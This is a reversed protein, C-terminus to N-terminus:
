RHSPRPRRAARCLWTCHHSGACARRSKGASRSCHGLQRCTGAAPSFPSHPICHDAKVHRRCSPPALAADPRAPRLAPDWRPMCSASCGRSRPQATTRLRSTSSTWCCRDYRRVCSSPGIEVLSARPAPRVSDLLEEIEDAHVVESTLLGNLVQSLLGLAKDRTARGGWENEVAMGLATWEAFVVHVARTLVSVADAM